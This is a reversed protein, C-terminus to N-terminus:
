KHQKHVCTHFLCMMNSTPGVKAEHAFVEQQVLRSTSKNKWCAALRLFWDTEDGSGASFKGPNRVEGYSKQSSVLIMSNTIFFLLRGKAGVWEHWGLQRGSSTGDVQTSGYGELGKRDLYVVEYSFANGILANVQFPFTEIRTFAKTPFKRRM